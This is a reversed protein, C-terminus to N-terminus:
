LGFNYGGLFIENSTIPDIPDLETTQSSFDNDEGSLNLGRKHCIREEHAMLFIESESIFQLPPFFNCSFIM